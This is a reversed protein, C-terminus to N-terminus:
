LKSCTVVPRGCREVVYLSGLAADLCNENRGDKSIVPSIGWGECSDETRKDHQIAM